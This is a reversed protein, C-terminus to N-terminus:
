AEPTAEDGNHVVGWVASLVVDYRGALPAFHDIIPPLLM